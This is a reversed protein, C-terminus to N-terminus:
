KYYQVGRYTLSVQVKRRAEIQRSNYISRRYSLEVIKKQTAEKLQLYENGRYTLVTMTKNDHELGREM